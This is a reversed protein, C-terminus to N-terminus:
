STPLFARDILFGELGAARISATGATTQVRLAATRGRAACPFRPTFDQERSLVIGSGCKITCVVHYSERGANGHDDASNTSDWAGLSALTNATRSRSLPNPYLPATESVGDVILTVAMSSKWEATALQAVTWRKRGAAGALYARTTVDMQVAVAGSPLCDERDAYMLHLWGQAFDAAFLRREGRYTIFVFADLGVTSPFTHIGEWKESVLNYAFIANNKTSRDIPVALYYYDGWVAGEAKDASKWNVRRQLLQEIEASVAVPATQIREQVVQTVRHVGTASLFLVDGGVSAVSRPAICGLDPNILQVGLTSLDGSAGTLMFISKGKFVLLNDRTFPFIRAIADDKGANFRVKNLLGFRTYDGIDSISVYDRDHPVFLRDNLLEATAASAIRRTGAIPAIDVPSFNGTESGNWEMPVEGDVFLLLKDFAQCFSVKGALTGTTTAIAVTRPTKGPAVLTVNSATALVTWEEGRIPDRFSGAGLIASSIRGWVPTHVGGRPSIQGNRFVANVAEQVYGPPLSEPALRTNVGLFGADGDRTAPDDLTPAQPFRTM